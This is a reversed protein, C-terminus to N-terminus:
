SGEGRAADGMSAVQRMPPHELFRGKMLLHRVPFGRELLADALHRRHCRFYLAESCLIVMPGKPAAAELRSLGEKFEDTQMYTEYGNKRFGGLEKGLPLYAIGQRPLTRELNERGFQPNRRSGPFRRVDVVIRAEVSRLIDLFEEETRSSHGLTYLPTGGRSEGVPM